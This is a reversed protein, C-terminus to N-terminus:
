RQPGLVQSQQSIDKNDRGKGQEENGGKGTANPAAKHTRLGGPSINVDPKFFFELAIAVLTDFKVFAGHIGVLKQTFCSFM